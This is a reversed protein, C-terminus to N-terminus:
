NLCQCNGFNIGTIATSTATVSVQSIVKYCGSYGGGLLTVYNNVTPTGLFAPNTNDFTVYILSGDTACTDNDTVLRVSYYLTSAETSTPTITPTPTATPNPTTTPVPTSLTNATMVVDITDNGSTKSFVHSGLGNDISFVQTSNLTATQNTNDFGQTVLCNSTNPTYTLGSITIIDGVNVTITTSDTEIGEGSLHDYIYQDVGNVRLKFIGASCDDSTVNVTIQGTEVTNCEVDVDFCMTDYCPFAKSDHAYINKVIYKGTTVDTMKVWYQTDFELDEITVSTTSTTYTGVTTFSSDTEVPYPNNGSKYRIVYSGDSVINYLKVNLGM